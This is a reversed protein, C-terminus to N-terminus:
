AVGYAEAAYSVRERLQAQLLSQELVGIQVNMRQIDEEIKLLAQKVKVLPAGDSTKAGQEEIQMKIQDIDESIRQLTATRETVGGSAAKYRERVEARADQSEKYRSLWMGLQQNLTRERSEIRELSKEVENAVLDLKPTLEDILDTLNQQLSAMQELHMRWDKADQRITIKLLPTVREVEERWAIVDTNSHLIAQKPIDQQENNLPASLDVYVGGDDDDIYDDDAVETEDDDEEEQDVAVDDDEKEPPIMKEWKFNTHILAADALSDLVHLVADGAGSKLKNAPFDANIDQVGVEGQAVM